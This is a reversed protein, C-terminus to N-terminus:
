GKKVRKMSAIRMRIFDDEDRIRKEYRGCACKGESDRLRFDKCMCTNEKNTLCHHNSEVFLPKFKAEDVIYVGYKDELFIDLQKETTPPTILEKLLYGGYQNREEQERKEEDTMKENAM